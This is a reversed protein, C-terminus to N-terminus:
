IKELNDVSGSMILEINATIKEIPWDWWAIDLLRAIEDEDFRMKVVKAPNGLAVAYPPIDQTVVARSSIIAGHGITVGPMILSEYGMWVDHGVITDGRRPLGMVLEMHQGWAGGMVPFPYTSPGDMRHNAGDMIFKVGTALACYKGIKLSVGSGEFLYLVNENQFQYAGNPDDYYSYDGVQIDPRTIFNKLFCVREQGKIPHKQDPNPATGQTATM